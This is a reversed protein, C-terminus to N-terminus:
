APSRSSSIAFGRKITYPALPVGPHFPDPSAIGARIRTVGLTQTSEATAASVRACGDRQIAADHSRV